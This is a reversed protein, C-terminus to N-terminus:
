KKENSIHFDHQEKLLLYVKETVEGTIHEDKKAPESPKIFKILAGTNINRIEHFFYPSIFGARNRPCMIVNNACHLFQLGGAKGKTVDIAISINPKRRRQLKAYGMTKSMNINNRAM